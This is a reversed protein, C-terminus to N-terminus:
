RQNCGITQAIAYSYIYSYSLTEQLRPGTLLFENLGKGNSTAATADFVVRLKTSTSDPKFVAHHPLFSQPWMDIESKSIREMHCLNLYQSMFKRYGDYMEPYKRGKIEMQLLRRVAGAYSNGLDAGGKRFPLEVIYRGDSARKKTREYIEECMVDVQSLIEKQNTEEQEWLRRLMLDLQIQTHCSLVTESTGITKSPNGSLIWGFM